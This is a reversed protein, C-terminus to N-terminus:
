AEDGRRTNTYIRYKTTRVRSCRDTIKIQKATLFVECKLAWAVGDTLAVVYTKPRGTSVPIITPWDPNTAGRFIDLYLKGFGIIQGSM